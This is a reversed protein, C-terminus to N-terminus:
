NNEKLQKFFKNFKKVKNKEDTINIVEYNKSFSNKKWNASGFFIVKEDFIVLKTHLKNKTKYFKINKDYKGDKKEYFINVEVGRKSAKNLEKIFKSYRINYMAINISYKANKILKIVDKKVSKNDKPLFYLKDFSHVNLVFILIILFVKIM